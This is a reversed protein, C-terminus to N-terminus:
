SGRAYSIRLAADMEDCLLTVAEVMAAVGDGRLRRAGNLVEVVGRVRM